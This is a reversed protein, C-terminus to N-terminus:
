NGLAFNWLVVGTDSNIAFLENDTTIAYIITGDTSLPAYIKKKNSSLPKETFMKVTNNSTNLTWLNSDESALFLNSGILVPAASIPSASIAITNMVGNSTNFTYVNGDIDPAYITNGVLVPNAWFWKEAPEPSKWIQQGTQANVAYFYRDFSGFYVVGDKIVPTSIIAGQTPFHWKETGDNINLAYMNKDFSGIFLTDGSAVPTAWIKNKTAFPAAWASAPSQQPEATTNIAYVKGDNCGFYLNGNVYIAGGVLSALYGKDPYSWQEIAKDSDYAYVKGSFTTVFIMNNAIVPTGYIYMSSSSSSCSLLGGSSAVVLPIDNFLKSRKTADLGVLKSNMSGIYLNNGEVAVGSWGRYVAATTCGALIGAILVLSVLSLIIGSKRNRLFQFLKINL